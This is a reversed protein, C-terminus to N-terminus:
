RARGLAASAGGHHVCPRVRERGVPGRQTADPSSGISLEMQPSTAQEMIDRQRLRSRYSLSSCPSQRAGTTAISRASILREKRPGIEAAGLSRPGPDGVLFLCNPGTPPAKSSKQWQRWSTLVFRPLHLRRSFFCWRLQLRHVRLGHALNPHQAPVEGSNVRRPWV